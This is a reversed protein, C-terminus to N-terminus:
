HITPSTPESATWRRRMAFSAITTTTSGFAFVLHAAYPTSAPPRTISLTAYRFTMRKGATNRAVIVLRYGVKSHFCGPIICCRRPLAAGITRKLMPASNTSRKAAHPGPGSTILRPGGATESPDSGLAVAAGAGVAVARGVAVGAGVGVGM